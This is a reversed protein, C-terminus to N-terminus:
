RCRGVVFVNRLGGKFVVQIVSFLRKVASCKDNSM